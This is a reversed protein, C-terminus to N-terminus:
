IFLFKIGGLNLVDALIRIIWFAAFIIFFGILGGTIKGRANEIKKPDGASTMLQLGAILTFVLLAIGAITLMLPFLKTVISGVSDFNKLGTENVLSSYNTKIDNQALM